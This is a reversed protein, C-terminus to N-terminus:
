LFVKDAEETGFKSEVIDRLTFQMLRYMEVRTTNGLHPRGVELNGLLEWSFKYKREQM